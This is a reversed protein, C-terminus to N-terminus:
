DGDDVYYWEIRTMMKFSKSKRVGQVRDSSCIKKFNDTCTIESTSNRIRTLLEVGEGGGGVQSKDM